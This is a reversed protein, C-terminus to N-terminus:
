RLWVVAAVGAAIVLIVGLIYKNAALWSERGELGGTFNLSAPNPEAHGVPEVLASGAAPEVTKVSAPASIKPESVVATASEVAKASAAVPERRAAEVRTEQERLEALAAELSQPAVTQPALRAPGAAAASPGAVAAKPSVLTSASARSVLPAVAVPAM